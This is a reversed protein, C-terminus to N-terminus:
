GDDRRSYGNDSVKEWEACSLSHECTKIDHKMM